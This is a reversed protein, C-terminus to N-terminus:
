LIIKLLLVINSLILLVSAVTLIIKDDELDIIKFFKESNEQSQKFLIENLSKIRKDDKDMIDRYLKTDNVMKELLWKSKGELKKIEHKLDPIKAAEKYYKNKKELLQEYTDKKRM